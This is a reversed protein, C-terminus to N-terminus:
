LRRSRTDRRRSLILGARRFWLKKGAFALAIEGGFYPVGAAGDKCQACFACLGTDVLLCLLIDKLFLM